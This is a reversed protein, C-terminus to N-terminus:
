EELGNPFWYKGEVEGYGSWPVFISGRPIDEFYDSGEDVYAQFEEPELVTISWIESDSEIKHFNFRKGVKFILGEQPYFINAGNIILDKIPQVNVFEPEGFRDIVQQVNLGINGSFELFVTENEQFIVRGQVPAIYDLLGPYLWFEINDQDNFYRNIFGTEFQYKAHPLQEFIEIVEDEQTEGVTIGYWCPLECKSALMATQHFRVVLIVGVILLISLVLYLFGSCCSKLLKKM